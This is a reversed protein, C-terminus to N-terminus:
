KHTGCFYFVELELKWFKTQISNQTRRKAEERNTKPKWYVYFFTLPSPSISSRLSLNKWEALLRMSQRSVFIDVKRHATSRAMVSFLSVKTNKNKRVNMEQSIIQYKNYIM